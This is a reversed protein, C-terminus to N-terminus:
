VFSDSVVYNVRQIKGRKLNVLDIAKGRRSESYNEAVSGNYRSFARLFHCVKFVEPCAGSFTWKAVSGFM